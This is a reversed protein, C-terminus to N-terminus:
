GGLKRLTVTGLAGLPKEVKLVEWRTEGVTVVSGAGVFVPGTPLVLACLWGHRQSGDPLTYDGEYLNAMPVRHGDLDGVTTEEITEIVAAEQAAGASALAIAVMTAANM